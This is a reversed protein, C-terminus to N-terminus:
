LTRYSQADRGKRVPRGLLESLFVHPDHTPPTRPAIVVVAPCRRAPITIERRIGDLVAIVEVPALPTHDRRDLVLSLTPAAPRKGRDLGRLARPGYVLVKGADHPEGRPLEHITRRFVRPARSPVDVRGHPVHDVIAQDPFLDVRVGGVVARALYGEVARNESGVATEAHNGAVFSPDAIRENLSSRQHGRDVRVRGHKLKVRPTDDHPLVTPRLQVM